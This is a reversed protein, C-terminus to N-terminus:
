AVEKQIDVNRRGGSATEFSTDGLPNLLEHRLAAVCRFCLWVVVVKEKSGIEINVTTDSSGCEDCIGKYRACTVTM